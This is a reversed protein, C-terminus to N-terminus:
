RNINTLCEEYNEECAQLESRSTALMRCGKYINLCNEKLEAEEQIKEKVWTGLVVVGIKAGVELSKWLAESQELERKESERKSIIMAISLILLVIGVATIVKMKTYDNM